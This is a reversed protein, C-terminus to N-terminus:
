LCEAPKERPTNQSHLSVEWLIQITEAARIYVFTLKPHTKLTEPGPTIKKTRRFSTGVDDRVIAATTLDLQGWSDM